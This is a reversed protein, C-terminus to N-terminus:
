EAEQDSQSPQSALLPEYLEGFFNHLKLKQERGSPAEFDKWPVIFLIQPLEKNAKIRTTELQIDEEQASAAVAFTMLTLLVRRIM